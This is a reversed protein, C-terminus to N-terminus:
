RKVLYVPVGFGESDTLLNHIADRESKKDYQVMILGKQEDDSCPQDVSVSIDTGLNEINKVLNQHHNLAEKAAEVTPLQACPPHTDKASTQLWGNFVAFIGGILLLIVVVAVIKKFNM